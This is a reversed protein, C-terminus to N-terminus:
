RPGGHDDTLLVCLSQLFDAPPFVSTRQQHAAGTSQVLRDCLVERRSSRGLRDLRNILYIRSGRAM